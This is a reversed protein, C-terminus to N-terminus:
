QREVLGFAGERPPPPPPGDDVDTLAAVLPRDGVAAAGVAADGTNGGVSERRGSVSHRNETTEREDNRQKKM